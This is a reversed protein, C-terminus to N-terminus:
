RMVKKFIRAGMSWAMPAVAVAIAAAAIGGIAAVIGSVEAAADTATQAQAPQQVLAVTAGTGVAAAPLYKKYDNNNM